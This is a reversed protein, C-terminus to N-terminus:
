VTLAKLAEERAAVTLARYERERGPGFLFRELTDAIREATRGDWLPPPQHAVRPEEMFRRAHEVASTVNLGILHNTGHTITIPRETNPRLTLCPVGLYSTEEQVGGSDTLTVGSEKQLKLFDFYGLPETLVLNELGGEMFRQAREGCASLNKRTRPHAPFVVKYDQAIQEIIDLVAELGSEDDVNGPRHMTLLVYKQPQLNLQKLINSKEASPLFKVLTDIMINGVLEIKERPVGERELNRNADKSPTLLLDSLCDTVLRNLEEPMTRDFSRLGAEVHAVPIGSKAATVSAALTSNIDGFVVVLDPKKEIFVKDCEVMVRATQEAHSGSGVGLHIHPSPIGLETFFVDSMKSDYHQGTHMILANFTDSRSALASYLPALKVFNPRAGAVLIVTKRSAGDETSRISMRNSDTHTMRSSPKM